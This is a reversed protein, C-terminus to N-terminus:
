TNQLEAKPPAYVNLIARDEQHVSEKNKARLDVKVNIYGSLFNINVPYIAKGGKVKLRGVTKMISMCKKYVAHVRTM